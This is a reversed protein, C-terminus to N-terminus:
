EPALQFDDLMCLQAAINQMRSRNAGFDTFGLRSASRFHLLNESEDVLFEVDDVFRLIRSTFTAHLYHTQQQVIRCGPQQAIISRAREIAEAGSCSFKLPPLRHSAASAQTCVCNPTQPCDQLRIPQDEPMM